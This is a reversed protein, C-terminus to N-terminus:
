QEKELRIYNSQFHSDLIRTKFTNNKCNDQLITFAEIVEGQRVFGNGMEPTSSNASSKSLVTKFSEKFTHESSTAPPSSAIIATTATVFPSSEIIATTATVIPTITIKRHNQLKETLILNYTTTKM